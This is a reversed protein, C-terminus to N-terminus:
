ELEDHIYKCYRLRVINVRLLKEILMMLLSRVNCKQEVILLLLLLLTLVDVYMVFVLLVM